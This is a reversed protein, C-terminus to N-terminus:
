RGGNQLEWLFAYKLYASYASLQSILLGPIGDLIGLRMFYTKAFRLPPHILFDMLTARRGKHFAEQAALKAFQQMKPLYQSYSRFTYHEMSAQLRGTTGQLVLEEHVLRDDRFHGKNRRFLRLVEGSSWCRVARDRFFTRRHIRYGDCAPTHNLLLRIEARLSDTLREDADVLLVWDHDPLALGYNKNASYNDFVRQHVTANLSRAIEVTRDTSFSDLVVIEDALDGLSRICDGINDEENYAPILVSLKEAM